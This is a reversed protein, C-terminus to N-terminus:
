WFEMKKIFLLNLFVTNQIRQIGLLVGEITVAAGIVLGMLFLCGIRFLAWKLAKKNPPNSKMHHHVLELIFTLKPRNTEIRTQKRQRFTPDTQKLFRCNKRLKPRNTKLKLMSAIKWLFFLNPLIMGWAVGISVYGAVALPVHSGMIAAVLWVALLAVAFTATLIYMTTQFFTILGLKFM